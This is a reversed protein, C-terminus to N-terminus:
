LQVRFYSCRVTPEDSTALDAPCEMAGNTRVEEDTSLLRPDSWAVWLDLAKPTDADPLVFVSGRPLQARVMNRWQHLDAASMQAATCIDAATNCMPTPPTFPAPTAPNQVAFSASYAYRTATGADGNNARMREAIDSALHTAISRYQSLKVLRVAAAHSAALALLGVSAVLIAVLVEVLTSGDESRRYRGRHSRRSLLV